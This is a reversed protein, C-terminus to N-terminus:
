RSEKMSDTLKILTQRLQEDSLQPDDEMRPEPEPGPLESGSVKLSRDIMDLAARRVTDEKDSGLLNALHLAAVPGYRSITFRTDRLSNGCLRDLEEIFEPMILWRQLTKVSVDCQKSIEQEDTQGNYLAEAVAKQKKNLM